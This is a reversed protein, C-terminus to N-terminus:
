ASQRWDSAIDPAAINVPCVNAAADHINSSLVGDDSAFAAVDQILCNMRETSLYNDENSFVAGEGPFSDTIQVTDGTLDSVMGPSLPMGSDSRIVTMNKTFQKANLKQGNSFEFNEIRRKFPKWLTGNDYQKKHHHKWDAVTISDNPNNRFKIVLHNGVLQTTIDKPTICGGFQITDNGPNSARGHQNAETIQDKGDGPNYIYIDNGPGGALYDAGPGGELVDRGPGTTIIDAGGGSSIKNNGSLITFEDFSPGGYITDPHPKRRYNCSRDPIVPSTKKQPTDYGYFEEPDIKSGHKDHIQYHVHRDYQFRGKTRTRGNFCNKTRKKGM